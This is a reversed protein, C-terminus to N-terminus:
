NHKKFQVIHFKIFSDREVSSKIDCDRIARVFEETALMEEPFSQEDNCDTESDLVITKSRQRISSTEM